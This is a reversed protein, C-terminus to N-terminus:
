WVRVLRWRHAPRCLQHLVYLGGRCARVRPQSACAAPSLRAVGRAAQGGSSSRPTNALRARSAGRSSIARSSRTPAALAASAQRRRAAKQREVAAILM